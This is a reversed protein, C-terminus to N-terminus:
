KTEQTIMAAVANGTARVAIKTRRDDIYRMTMGISSHGAFQSAAHIDANAEVATTIAFHRLAHPHIAQSESIIGESILHNSHRSIIAYVSLGDFVARRKYNEKADSAAAKEQTKVAAADLRVFVLDTPLAKGQPHTKDRHVIWARLAQVAEDPIQFRTMRKSRDTTIRAGKRIIKIEGKDLVLDEIRLSAAESARLGCGALLWLLATDRAAYREDIQNRASAFLARVTEMDPGSTDRNVEAQLRDPRVTWTIIHRKRFFSLVALVADLRRKITAPALKEAEMSGRWRELLSAVAAAKGALL